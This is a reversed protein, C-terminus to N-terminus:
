KKPRMSKFRKTDLRAHKDIIGRTQDGTISADGSREDSMSKLSKMIHSTVINEASLRDKQYTFTPSPGILPHLSDSVYIV